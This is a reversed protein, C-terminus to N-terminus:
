HVENTLASLQDNQASYVADKKKIHVTLEQLAAGMSTLASTQQIVTTTLSQLSPSATQLEQNSQKFSNMIIESWQSLVIEPSSAPFSVDTISAKRAVEMLKSSIVNATSMESTVTNHYMVLTCACIRLVSWLKGGRKFAKVSVTFLNDIFRDIVEDTATLCSFNPARIQARTDDWGALAMGGPLGRFMNREDAYSDVSTGTSHGSRGTVDTM